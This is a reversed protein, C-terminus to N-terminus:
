QLMKLVKDSIKKNHKAIDYPRSRASTRDKANKNAGLRLLEMIAENNGQSAAEHLVTNGLDDTSNLQSKDKKAIAYVKNWDGEFAAQMIPPANEVMEQAEDAYALQIGYFRFLDSNMLPQNFAFSWTLIFLVSFLRKM